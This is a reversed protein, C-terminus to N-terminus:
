YFSRQGTLISAVFEANPHRRRRLDSVVADVDFPVGRHTVALAEGDEILLWSATGCTRPLGASGPNLVRIGDVFRDAAFHTAASSSM